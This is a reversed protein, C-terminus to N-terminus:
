QDYRSLGGSSARGGWSVGADSALVQGLWTLQLPADHHHLYILRGNLTPHRKKDFLLLPAEKPEWELGM